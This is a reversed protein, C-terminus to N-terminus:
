DIGVRVADRDDAHFLQRDARRRLRKGDVATAGEDDAAVAHQVLDAEIRQAHRPRYRHAVIREADNRGAPSDVYAGVRLDDNEVLRRQLADHRNRGLLERATQRDVAPLEVDRVEAGSFEGHNIQRPERHQVHDGGPAVRINRLADDEAAPAGVQRLRSRVGRVRRQDEVRGRKWDDRDDIQRRLLVEGLIPDGDVDGITRRAEWDIDGDRRVATRE